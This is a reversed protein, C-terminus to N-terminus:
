RHVNLDDNRDNQISNQRHEHDFIFISNRRKRCPTLNNSPIISQALENTTPIARRGYRLVQFSRM